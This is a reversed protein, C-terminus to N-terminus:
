HSTAAVALRTAKKGHKALEVQLVAWTDESIPYISECRFDGNCIESRFTLEDVAFRPLEMTAFDPVDYLYFRGAPHYKGRLFGPDRLYLPGDLPKGIFSAITSVCAHALAVAKRTTFELEAAVKSAHRTAIYSGLAYMLCGFVLVTLAGNTM